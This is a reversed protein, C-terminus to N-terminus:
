YRRHHEHRYEHPYHPQVYYRHYQPYQIIYYSPPYPSVQPYPVIYPQNAIANGIVIGTLFPAYWDDNDALASSSILLLGM